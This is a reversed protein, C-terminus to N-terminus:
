QRLETHVGENKDGRKRSGKRNEWLFPINKTMYLIFSVGTMLACVVILTMSWVSPLEPWFVHLLMTGYLLFTAAKGHWVAQPVIGAYKILLASLVAICVDRIVLITLPVAMFPFRFVLCFLVAAQTLKDAAPDLIKGVDSVMHFRRAIFGDLVDTGGSLLLLSGAAFSNQKGLYFWVIAPILCLRFLSLLNPITFINKNRMLRM